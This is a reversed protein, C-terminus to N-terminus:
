DTHPASQNQEPAYLYDYLSLNEYERQILRGSPTFYHATTLALGTKESLPYVTQVLGKGFSPEGMVLARDHDQLAGSVIEAASATMRDILVVIPYQNGGDGHNAYYRKEKSHRGYHYVILQHKELFHESVDVAEQLLGGPNGRLDLILGKLSKESMRRLQTSLEDNTTENFRDIHLYAIGPQMIFADDVSRPSIEDRTITFDLPAEYGERTITVRVVTGKPGKLM